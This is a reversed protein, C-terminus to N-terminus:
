IRLVTSLDSYSRGRNPSPSPAFEATMSKQQDAVTAIPRWGPRQNERQSVLNPLQSPGSRICCSHQSGCPMGSFPSPALTQVFGVPRLCCPHRNAHEDRAASETAVAPAHRMSWGRPAIVSIRSVFVLMLLGVTFYRGM